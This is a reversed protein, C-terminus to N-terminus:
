WRKVMLSTAKLHLQAAIVPAGRAPPATVQYDVLVGDYIAKFLKTIRTRVAPSEFQKVSALHTVLDAISLRALADGTPALTPHMRLALSTLAAANPSPLERSIAVMLAHIRSRAEPPALRFRGCYDSDDARFLAFTLAALAMDRAPMRTPRALTDEIFDLLVFLVPFARLQEVFAVHMCRTAESRAVAPWYGGAAESEYFSRKYGGGYTDCLLPFFFRTFPEFTHAEDFRVTSADIVEAEKVSLAECLLHWTQLLHEGRVASPALLQELSARADVESGREVEVPRITGRLATSEACRVEVSIEAGSADLRLTADVSAHEALRHPLCLPVDHGLLGADALARRKYRGHQRAIEHVLTRLSALTFPPRECRTPTAARLAKSDCRVSPADEGVLSVGRAM